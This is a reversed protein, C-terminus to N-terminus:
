LSISGIGKSIAGRLSISKTESKLIHTCKTDTTKMMPTNALTPPYLDLMRNCYFRRYAFIYGFPWIHRGLFLLYLKLRFFFHKVATTSETDICEIIRVRANLNVNDNLCFFFFLNQEQSDALLRSAWTFYGSLMTAWRDRLASPGQYISGMTIFVFSAHAM